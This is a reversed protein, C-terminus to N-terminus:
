HRLLLGGGIGILGTWARWGVEQLDMEINDEWRHRPRGLPREGEPKGVFDQVCKEEGWYMSCARGMDNKKIQDGLYYKM